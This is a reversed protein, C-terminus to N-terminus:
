LERREVRHAPRPGDIPHRQSRGDCGRPDEAPRSSRRQAPRGRHGGRRDGAARRTARRLVARQRPRRPTPGRRRRRPGPPSMRRARRIMAIREHDPQGTTGWGRSNALVARVLLDVADIADALEAAELLHERHAAVGSQREADGLGILIEVRQRRDPEPARDILELAQAYWRLADDPALQDLARDGAVQAYHVAKATDTPQVAQAWHYALEGVRSAVTPGPSRKSSSPSPRTPARSRRAPSLGDYLTHEILAHAFTYRDPDDTTQLVAAEVAADCLDILTDEDTQAVAALLPM